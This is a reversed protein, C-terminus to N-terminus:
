GQGAARGWPRGRWRWTERTTRRGSAAALAVAVARAIRDRRPDNARGGIGRCSLARGHLENASSEATAGAFAPAWSCLDTSIPGRRRPSSLLSAQGGTSLERQPRRGPGSDRGAPISGRPRKWEDRQRRNGRADR